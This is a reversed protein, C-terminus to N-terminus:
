VSILVAPLLFLFVLASYIMKIKLPNNNEWFSFAVYPVILIFPIMLLKPLRGLLRLFIYGILVVITIIMLIFDSFYPQKADKQPMIDGEDKFFQFKGIIITFIRCLFTLISKIKRCCFLVSLLDTSSPSGHSFRVRTVATFPRHRLRKVLPGNPHYRYNSKFWRCEPYSGFARAM